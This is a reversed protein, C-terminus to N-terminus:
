VKSGSYAWPFQVILMGAGAEQLEHLLKLNNTIVANHVANYHPDYDDVQDIIPVNELNQDNIHHLLMKHQLGHADKSHINIFAIWKKFTRVDNERVCQLFILM